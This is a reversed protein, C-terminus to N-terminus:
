RTRSYFLFPKCMEIVELGGSTIDELLYLKQDDAVYYCCGVTGREKMDMAMVIQCLDENEDQEQQGRNGQGLGLEGLIENNASNETFAAVSSERASPAIRDRRGSSNSNFPRQNRRAQSHQSSRSSHFGGRNRRSSSPAM